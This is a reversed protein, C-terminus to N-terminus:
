RFNIGFGRRVGAAFAGAPLLWRLLSFMTAERTIRNRLRPNSSRAIKAVLNAVLEPGPAKAEFKAMAGLAADRWRAYDEMKAAQPQAYFPTKIAGPEVLAVKIGFPRTEFRLTEVLGEVAFKSANYYGWFPVPVLGALSSITILHGRKRERMHPLVARLMRAVGFFNTEFQAKAEAMSVEEIAGAVLYGANNVLVDIAGARHIVTHVCRAVSEDSGVDLEIMEVGHLQAAIPKRATGFVRYGDGLLRQAIAAGIGSSAGTVLAVPRTSDLQTM